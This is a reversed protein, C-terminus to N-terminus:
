WLLRLFKCKQSSDTSQWQYSGPNRSHSIVILNKERVAVHFQFNELLFLLPEDVVIVAVDWSFIYHFIVLAFADSRTNESHLFRRFSECAAVIWISLFLQFKCFYYNLFSKIILISILFKWLSDRFSFSFITHVELRFRESISVYLLNLPSFIESLSNSIESLILFTGHVTYRLLSCWISQYRHLRVRNSKWRYFESM